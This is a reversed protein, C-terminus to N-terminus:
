CRKLEKEVDDAQISWDSRNMQLLNRLHEGAPESALGYLSEVVFPEIKSAMVSQRPCAKAKIKRGCVISKSASRFVPIKALPLREFPSPRGRGALSGPM